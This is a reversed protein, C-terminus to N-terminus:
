VVMKIKASDKSEGERKERAENEAGVKFELKIVGTYLEPLFIPNIVGGVFFGRSKLKSVYNRFSSFEMGLYLALNSLTTPDKLYAMLDPNDDTFELEGEKVKRVIRRYVLVIATAVEIERRNLGSMFGVLSVYREVLDKDTRVEINM